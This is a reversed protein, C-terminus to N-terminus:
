LPRCPRSLLARLAIKQCFGALASLIRAQLAIFIAFLPGCPQSLVAHLATFRRGSSPYKCSTYYLNILSYAGFLSSWSSTLAQCFEAGDPLATDIWKCCVNGICDWECLEMLVRWTLQIFRSSYSDHVTHITFQIFRSSYSDHVTHITFQIFRSSYTGASPVHKGYVERRRILRSNKQM